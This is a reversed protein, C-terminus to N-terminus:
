DSISLSQIIQSSMRFNSHLQSIVREGSKGAANYVTSEFIQFDDACIVPTCVSSITQTNHLISIPNRQQTLVVGCNDTRNRFIVTIGEFADYKHTKDEAYVGSADHLATVRIALAPM